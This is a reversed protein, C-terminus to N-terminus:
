EGMVKIIVRKARQGDFEAQLDSIRHSIEHPVERLSRSLGIDIRLNRLNRLNDRPFKESSM